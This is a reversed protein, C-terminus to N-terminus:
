FWPLQTKKTTEINEKALDSIMQRESYSLQMVQEYNIGGRMYWALRLSDSRIHDAEKELDDVYKAVDDNSLTLLRTRFFKGYGFEIATSIQKPM